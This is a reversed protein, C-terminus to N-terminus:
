ISLYSDKNLPVNRRENWLITKKGNFKAFVHVFPVRKCSYIYLDIKLQLKEGVPAETKFSIFNFIMNDYFNTDLFQNSQIM